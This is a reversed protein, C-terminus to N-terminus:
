NNKKYGYKRKMIKELEKRFPGTGYRALALRKCKEDVDKGTKIDIDNGAHTICQHYFNDLDVLNWDGDKDSEMYESLHFAHHQGKKKIYEVSM